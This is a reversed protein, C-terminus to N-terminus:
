APEGARIDAPIGGISCKKLMESMADIERSITAHASNLRDRETHLDREIRLLRDLEEQIADLMSPNEFRCPMMGHHYEACIWRQLLSKTIDSLTPSNKPSWSQDMGVIKKISIMWAPTDKVYDSLIKDLHLVSPDMSKRNLVIM